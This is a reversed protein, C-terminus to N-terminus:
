LTVHIIDGADIRGQGNISEAKIGSPFFTFSGPVTVPDGALGNDNMGDSWSYSGANGSSNSWPTSSLAAHATANFMLPAVIAAALKMLKRTFVIVRGARLALGRTGSKTPM